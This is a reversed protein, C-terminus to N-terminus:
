RRGTVMRWAKRLSRRLGLEQVRKLTRLSFKTKVRSRENKRDVRKEVDAVLERFREPKIHMCFCNAPSQHNFLAVNFDDGVLGHEKCFDFTETGPYPTFISYSISDAQIAEMAAVTDALTEETEEPFGVIFFAELEIGHSKIIRCAELAEEITIGKRIRKLMENNGSEIGIQVHYLGAAKMMAITEDDVLKVNLECSWKLGPCQTRIGDCLEAIYKKQIGFTDDDFHVFKLGMKQLAQIERIVNPASRFRVHRSWIKRSGCFFCNYPCGRTAFINKFADVPYKAYDKLVVPAHEHPYPLSDLDDMYVRPPTEVFEAGKRVILGPVTELGRGEAVAQLLEVLTREGEGRALVDIAECKLADAGVMSPHPGGVVVLTDPNIEKVIRAVSCASAFNQSKSTIGVVDPAFERVAARVDNWVGGSLDSLNHLYRQFGEGTLHSVRKPESNPVFDANCAMVDWDTERKVTGALYGLSLPYRDLSYTEKYLRYFPPEILLVRRKEETSL